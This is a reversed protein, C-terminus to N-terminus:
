VGAPGDAPAEEVMRYEQWPHWVPERGRPVPTWIPEAVPGERTMVIRTEWRQGPRYTAKLATHDLASM